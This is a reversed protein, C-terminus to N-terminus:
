KDVTYKELGNEGYRLRTKRGSLSLVLDGDESVPAILLDRQWKPWSQSIAKAEEQWRASIDANKLWCARLSIESLAWARYEDEEACWPALRGQRIRALRITRTKEGLRTRVANEELWSGARAYGENLDLLNFDANSRDGWTQGEAENEMDKFAAPMNMAQPDGYVMEILPRLDGPTEFGGKDFLIKASRWLLGHNAYVHAGKHGMNNLWNENEVMDPDPSIVLMHPGPVPRKARPRKDMHRWLRGARQILLDIPALDSIMLDFDLDLSQEIVQTAVLVRGARESVEARKGFRRMADHEIRQRDCMAFRAHFLDAEIGRARLMEAGRIADDVANRVWAVAAGRASAQAIRDIAEEEGGLRTVQVRRVSDPAPAINGAESIGTASITTILPYPAKEPAANGDDHPTMTRAAAQAGELGELFARALELRKQAPLTASLIIASGGLAAHFQLVRELEKSMYADYAHAEDVILVRDSLGWLRLSQFRSPLVALLAQDLTGVGIEALFTKRRDDGIWRACQAAAAENEAGGPQTALGEAPLRLGRLKVKAFAEDLDRRGHALAISPRADEAFLRAYHEKMRAFMGNATAMTPLAFYLGAGKGAQMLRLALLAAAETKGSGTADEIIFLTPGAPLPLEAIREQLPRPTGMGFLAAYDARQAPEPPILGAQGVAKRAAPLATERWYDVPDRDPAHFRFFERNSGLWDATVTLGALWYSLPKASKSSLWPCPPPSLLSLMDILFEHAIQMCIRDGDPNADSDKVPPRGHHGAIAMLLPNLGYADRQELKEALAMINNRALLMDFGLQWHSIYPAERFPGLAKEPWFQPVLAQFGRSFKGIDHLAILFVVLKELEDPRAQVRGAMRELMAPRIRLLERAVAAVDLCHYAVPHCKVPSADDM